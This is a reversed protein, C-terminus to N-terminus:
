SHVTIRRCCCSLNRVQLVFYTSQVVGMKITFGDAFLKNLVFHLYEMAGPVILKLESQQM